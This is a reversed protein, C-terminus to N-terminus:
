LSFELATLGTIKTITDKDMAFIAENLIKLQEANDSKKSLKQILDNIEEKTKRKKMENAEYTIIKIFSALIKKPSNRTLRSLILSDKFLPVLCILYVFAETVDGRVLRRIANTLDAAGSLSKSGIMLAPGVPGSMGSITLGAGTIAGISGISSLIDLSTDIIKTRKM